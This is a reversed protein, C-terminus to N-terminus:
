GMTLVVQEVRRGPRAFLITVITGKRDSQAVVRFGRMGRSTLVGVVALELRAAMSPGPPDGRMADMCAIELDERLGIDM